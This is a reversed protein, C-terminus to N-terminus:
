QVQDIRAGMTAAVKTRLHKSTVAKRRGLADGVQRYDGFYHIAFSTPFTTLFYKLSQSASLRRTAPPAEANEKIWAIHQDVEEWFGM